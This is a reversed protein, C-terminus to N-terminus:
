AIVCSAQFFNLVKDPNSGMMQVKVHIGREEVREGGPALSGQSCLKMTKLFFLTAFTLRVMLCDREAKISTMLNYVELFVATGQLIVHADEARAIM